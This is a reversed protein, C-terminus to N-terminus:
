WQQRVVAVGLYVLSLADILIFIGLLLASYFVVSGGRLREKKLDSENWQLITEWKRMGDTTGLALSALDSVQQDVRGHYGLLHEILTKKFVTARYYERSKLLAVLGMVASLGAAVFVGAAMLSAAWSPHAESTKATLLTVGVGTLGATVLFSHKLRDWNLSVEFRYEDLAIKYLERLEAREPPSGM